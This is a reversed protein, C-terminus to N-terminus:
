PMTFCIYRHSPWDTKQCDKSCYFDGCRVCVLAADKKCFVCPSKELNSSNESVAEESKVSSKDSIGNISEELSKLNFNNKNTKDSENSDDKEWNEESEVKNQEFLKDAQKFIKVDEPAILHSKKSSIQEQKRQGKRCEIGKENLARILEEENELFEFNIFKYPCNKVVEHVSHIQGFAACIEKVDEFSSPEPIKTICISKLNLKKNNRYEIKNNRDKIFSSMKM